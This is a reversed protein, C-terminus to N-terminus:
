FGLATTEAINNDITGPIGMVQVGYLEYLARAGRLSGDGGIVVLVGDKMFPSLNRIAAEQVEGEKFVEFRSSGIPSSAHSGMGRTDQETVPDIWKNALGLFGHRVFYVELGLRHGTVRLEKLAAGAGAFDGGSVLAVLRKVQGPRLTVRDKRAREAVSWTERNAREHQSLGVATSYGSLKGQEYTLLVVNDQSEKYEGFETFAERFPRPDLYIILARLTSSHTYLCVVHHSYRESISRIGDVVSIYTDLFSNGGPYRYLPHKMLLKATKPEVQLAHALTELEVQKEMGTVWGFDQSDLTREMLPSVGTSHEPCLATHVQEFLQTTNPSSSVLHVFQRP